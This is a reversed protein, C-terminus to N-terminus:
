FASGAGDMDVVEGVATEAAVAGGEAAGPPAAELEGNEAELCLRGAALELARTRVVLDACPIKADM